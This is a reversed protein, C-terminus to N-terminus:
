GSRPGSALLRIDNGIKLLSVALGNLASSLRLLADHSALAAFKNSSSTFPLKTMASIEKAMLEAFGEPSNLGTGVATGGQALAMLSPLCAMIGDLHAEIHSKYASFVHGLTLPTADQTHTRGVKVIAAFEKEKAALSQIISECSPLLKNHVSLASAIHMATPFSDNSSQSMNCHDNPHIPDQSGLVGGLSEIGVNAIVENMNMNTQTGSGTQWVKLPFHEKLEGNLIRTGAAIIADSRKKDLLQLHHNCHAAAIKQIAFAHILEEPMIEIGIPFNDLSRQTQAGWYKDSPTRVIGLSDHEERSPTM